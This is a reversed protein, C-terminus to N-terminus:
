GDRKILITTGIVFLFIGSGLLVSVPLIMESYSYGRWIAGELSVIGWKVLSFNSVTLMWGPMAFLPIMGGGTMSMILMIAMGGGGVAQETKGMVSILMMLGVFCLASSCLAIALKVPNDLRVGFVLNAFVLLIVSVSIITVFAALGKGALIQARSIPAIRLRVYTGKTKETVISVAFASTCGILAWLIASPFTIEYSSRPGERVQTIAKTVIKPGEQMSNNQMMSTDYNELFNSLGGFFKKLKVKQSDAITSSTDIAKMDDNIDSLLDKPNSFMDTMMEFSVKTLMGRIIEKSFSRSPDVGLEIYSEDSQFQQQAKGFGILLRVYASAKGRRVLLTASDLPVQTIDFTEIASLKTIYKISYESRDEDVLLLKISARDGSGSSGFIAGFFLAMILPFGIVWFLGAKDRLLLKIDKFALTLIAKM